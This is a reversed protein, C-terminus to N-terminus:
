ITQKCDQINVVLPTGDTLGTSAGDVFGCEFRLFPVGGLNYGFKNFVADTLNFRVTHDLGPPMYMFDPDGDIVM